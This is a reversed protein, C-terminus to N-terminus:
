FLATFLVTNYVCIPFVLFHERSGEASPGPFMQVTVSSMSNITLMRHVKNQDISNDFM